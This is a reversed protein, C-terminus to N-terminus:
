RKLLGPAPIICPIILGPRVCPVASPDRLPDPLICPIITRPDWIAAAARVSAMQNADLARAARPFRLKSVKRNTM